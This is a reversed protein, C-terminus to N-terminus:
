KEKEETEMKMFDAYQSELPDDEMGDDLSYEHHDM